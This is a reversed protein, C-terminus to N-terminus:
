APQSIVEIVSEAEADPVQNALDAQAVIGKCRGDEDVVLVRRVKHNMMVHYCVEIEDDPNVTFVEKTMCDSAKMDVPNHGKAVARTVIDRDTIIGVPKWSQKNELVPIAGCDDELMLKAVDKLSTEPTCYAINVTMIEKVRM